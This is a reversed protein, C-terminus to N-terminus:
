NEWAFNVSCPKALPYVFSWPGFRDPGRELGISKELVADDVADRAAKASETETVEVLLRQNADTLCEWTVQRVVRRNDAARERRYVARWDAVDRFAPVFGTLRKDADM